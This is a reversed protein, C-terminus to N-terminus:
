GARVSAVEAQHRELLVHHTRQLEASLHRLQSRSLPPIRRLLAYTGEDVFSALDFAVLRRLTRALPSQAGTGRGLGLSAALEAVDVTFGDPRHALTGALRRYAVTASPGLRPLWCLESYPSQPPFGLRDIVADPWAVVHLRAPLSREM